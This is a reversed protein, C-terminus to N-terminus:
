HRVTNINIVDKIHGHATMLPWIDHSCLPFLNCLKGWHPSETFYLLRTSLKPLITFPVGPCSVTLHAPELCSRIKRFNMLKPLLLSGKILARQLTCSHLQYNPFSQSLCVQVSSLLCFTVHKCSVYCRAFRSIESVANGVVIEFNRFCKEICVEFGLLFWRLFWKRGSSLPKEAM